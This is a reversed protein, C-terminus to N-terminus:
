TRRFHSSLVLGLISFYVFVTNFCYYTLDASCLYYWYESLNSFFEKPEILLVYYAFFFINMIKCIHKVFHTKTGLTEPYLELDCNLYVAGVNGCPVIGKERSLFLFDVSSVISM